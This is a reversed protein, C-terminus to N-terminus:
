LSKIWDAMDKLVEPSITEEITNYESVHGTKCHQFLHNLEPYSKLMNKKNKPLLKKIANLNLQEDVQMDKMGNIAMVPCASKKINEAPDYNLFYKMWPFNVQKLFGKLISLDGESLTDTGEINVASLMEDVDKFEEGRALHDLAKLMISKTHGSPNMTDIQYHLINCGKIGPGAMSIIFDSKKSAALMFAIMGGESHGLVGVPGFEHLGRLYQLATEADSMNDLTTAKAVEGTSCGVGRDDCRLTAIGQKAFYDAIVLFPKHYFIEEDRNQQGSGTVLLVVPVKNKNMKDYGIPYTLTGCLHSGGEKNDFAVEKTKYGFPEKPTQPRNAVNKNELELPFSLGSQSFTGKIIGHVLRGEFKAKIMPTVICVSDNSLYELKSEIGYVLQDPSDFTCTMDLSNINYCLRLREGMVNIKGSWPGQIDTVISKSNPSTADSSTGESNDKSLVLPFEFGNQKFLGNLRDNKLKASYICGAIKTNICISDNSLYAIESPIGYANQDPSDMTCKKNKSDIHYVIKLSVGMVELNGAWDGNITQAKASPFLFSLLFILGIHVKTM